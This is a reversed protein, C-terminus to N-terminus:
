VLTFLHEGGGGWNVSIVPFPLVYSPDCSYSVLSMYLWLWFSACGQLFQIGQRATHKLSPSVGKGEGKSFPKLNLGWSECFFDTELKLSLYTGLMTAKTKNKKEGVGGQCQMVFTDLNVGDPRYLGRSVPRSAWSIIDATDLRPRTAFTVATPRAGAWHLETILWSYARHRSRNVNYYRKVGGGVGLMLPM